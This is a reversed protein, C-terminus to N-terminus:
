AEESIVDDIYKFLEEFTELEANEDNDAIIQNDSSIILYGNRLDIEFNWVGISFSLLCFDYDDFKIDKYRKELETKIHEKIKDVIKRYDQLLDM